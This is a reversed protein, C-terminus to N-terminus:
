SPALGMRIRAAEMRSAVADSREVLAHDLVDWALGLENHDLYEIALDLEGPELAANAIVWRLDADTEAWSRRLEAREDDSYPGICESPM